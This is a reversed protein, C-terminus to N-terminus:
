IKEIKSFSLVDNSTLIYRAKEEGTIVDGHHIIANIGRISLNFLLIPISRDSLEWCDVRYPVFQFEWPMYNKATQWWDAIIMSGNGATPEHITNHEGVLLSCLEGLQRPTFDQKKIKRDSMEMEYLSQFWDYSLDYDMIKLLQQFIDSRKREDFLINMIADPLKYLETVGFVSLINNM